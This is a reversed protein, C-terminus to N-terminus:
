RRRDEAMGIKIETAEADLGQARLVSVLQRYPQPRFFGRREKKSLPLQKRLWRLRLSPSSPHAMRRYFLGDMLLNGESPWSANVDDNIVNCSAERLDIITDTGTRMKILDLTGKIDARQLNLKAGVVKPSKAPTLDFNSKIILNGGVAADAFRLEGEARIDRLVLSSAIKCAHANLAMGRANAFGAKECELSGGITASSLSM